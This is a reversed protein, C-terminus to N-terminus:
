DGIWFYLLGKEGDPLEVYFSNLSREDESVYIDLLKIKTAEFERLTEQDWNMYDSYNEPNNDLPVFFGSADVEYTKGMYEEVDHNTIVYENNKFEGWASFFQSNNIFTDVQDVGTNIQPSQQYIIDHSINSVNNNSPVLSYGSELTFPILLRLAVVIWLAYSIVKPTKKLLLRVLIVILIVYSATLSMDLVTLFLKSM